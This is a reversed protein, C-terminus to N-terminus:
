VYKEAGESIIGLRIESLLKIICLLRPLIRLHFPEKAQDDTGM